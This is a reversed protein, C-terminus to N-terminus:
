QEERGQNQKIHDRFAIFFDTRSAFEPYLMEIHKKLEEDTKGMMDEISGPFKRDIYEALYDFVDGWAVPPLAVADRLEELVLMYKRQILPDVNEAPQSPAAPPPPPPPVKAPPLAGKPPVAPGGAPSVLKSLLPLIQPLLPKLLGILGDEADEGPIKGGALNAGLRIAEVVSELSGAPAASEKRGQALNALATLLATNQQQMNTILTGLLANMGSDTSRNEPKNLEVLKRAESLAMTRNM